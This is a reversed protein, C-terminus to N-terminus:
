RFIRGNETESVLFQHFDKFAPSKRLEVRGVDDFCYATQNPYWKVTTPIKEKMKPDELIKNIKKELLAKTRKYHEDISNLRFCIDLPDKLKDYFM